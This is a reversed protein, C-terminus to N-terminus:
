LAAASFIPQCSPGSTTRSPEFTRALPMAEIMLPIDANGDVLTTL